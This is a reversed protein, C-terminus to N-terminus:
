WTVVEQSQWNIAFRLKLPDGNPGTIDVTLGLTNTDPITAAVALGSAGQDLLWALDERAADEAAQRTKNTLVAGESILAGFKSACKEADTAYVDGWYDRPGLLSILVATMLGSELDGDFSTDVGESTMQFALDSM